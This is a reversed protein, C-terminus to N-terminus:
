AHGALIEAVRSARAGTTTNSSATGTNKAVGAREPASHVQAADSNAAVGAGLVNRNRRLNCRKGPCKSFPRIDLSFM